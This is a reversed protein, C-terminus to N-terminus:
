TTLALEKLRLIWTILFLALIVIMVGANLRKNRFVNGDRLFYVAFFGISWFMPHYQWAQAFHLHFMAMVARTYGSGPCPFGFISEWVCRIGTWYSVGYGVLYLPVIIWKEKHGIIQKKIAGM